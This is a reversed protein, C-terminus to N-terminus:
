LTSVSSSMRAAPLVLSDSGARSEQDASPGVQQMITWFDLTFRCSLTVSLEDPETLGSPLAPAVLSLSCALLVSKGTKHEDDSSPSTM